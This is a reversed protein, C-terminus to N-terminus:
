QHLKCKAFILPSTSDDLKKPQSLDAKYFYFTTYTKNNQPITVKWVLINSDKCNEYLISSEVHINVCEENNFSSLCMM